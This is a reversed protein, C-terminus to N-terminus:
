CRNYLKIQHHKNLFSHLPLSACFEFNCTLESNRLIRAKLFDTNSNKTRFCNQHLTLGTSANITTNHAFALALKAALDSRNGKAQEFFFIFYTGLHKTRKEVKDNTWPSTRPARTIGMFGVLLFFIRLFREKIM